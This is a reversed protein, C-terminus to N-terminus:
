AFFFAAVLGALGAFASVHVSSAAGTGTATPSSGASSGTPSSGGTSSGGPAPTSGAPTSPTTSSGPDTPTSGGAPISSSANPDGQANKGLCTKDGSPNVQVLAPATPSTAGNVLDIAVFTYSVGGPQDVLWTTTTGSQVTPLTELPEGSSVGAPYVLIQVPGPNGEWSLQFKQCETLGAGPTHLQFTQAHAGVAALALAVLSAAFM